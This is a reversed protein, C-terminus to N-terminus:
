RYELNQEGDGDPSQETSYEQQFTLEQGEKGKFGETEQTKCRQPSKARIM